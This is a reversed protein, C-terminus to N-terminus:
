CIHLALNRVALSRMIRGSRWNRYSMLRRSNNNTIKDTAFFSNEFLSHKDKPSQKDRFAMGWVVSVLRSVAAKSRSLSKVVDDVSQCSHRTILSLAEHEPSSTVGGIKIPETDSLSTDTPYLILLSNRRYFLVVHLRTAFSGFGTRALTLSASPSSHFHTEHAPEGCPLAVRTM